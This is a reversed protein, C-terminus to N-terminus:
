EENGQVPLAQASGRYVEGADGGDQSVNKPLVDGDRWAEAERMFEMYRDVVALRDKEDVDSLVEELPRIQQAGSADPQATAAGRSVKASVPNRDMVSEAARVSAMALKSNQVGGRMVIDLTDLATPVMTLLRLSVLAELESQARQIAAIATPDNRLLRELNDRSTQLAEAVTGLDKETVIEPLLEELDEPAPLYDV